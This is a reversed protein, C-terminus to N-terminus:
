STGHGLGKRIEDYIIYMEERTGQKWEVTKGETNDDNDDLIELAWKESRMSERFPQTYSWGRDKIGQIIENTTM